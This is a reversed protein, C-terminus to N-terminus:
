IVIGTLDHVLAGGIRAKVIEGPRANGELIVLGDIEPADRYSRGISIGQDQGEILVDLERGIFGQNISLSIEEQLAMLRGLREEKVKQPIPDGLPESATGPEFSFPFAGIRDFRIERLFDLLAEFEKETEGPYGVIFTSRIALGPLASRMKALTTRVWDMNAPRRMRLLVEPNAHQLPIDLYPLIQPHAAMTEILRDTVYGPYAYMIRIWPIEPAERTIKELLEALGEKMGLDSGYDTTDQAILIVEQMGAAQLQIAESVITEMPRSVATGKILPISCFACPRRCGDAIKLYASAGQIAARLVGHEDAGVTSDQPLDYRPAPSGERINEVLELIDMWRRTSLIGDIGDVEQLLLERNRQPLCGAAVLIQGKRKHEALERLVSISEERAPQIFGCTNVILVDAWEAREVAQFGATALVRGMSDSDVTNKACGLSALFFKKRAKQDPSM